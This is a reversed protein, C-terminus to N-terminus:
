TRFWAIASAVIVGIYSGATLWLNKSELRDIREDLSNVMGKVSTIDGNVQTQNISIAHIEREHAAHRLDYAKSQEDLRRMMEQQLTHVAILIDHDKFQMKEGTDTLDRNAM